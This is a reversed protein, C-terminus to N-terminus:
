SSVLVSLLPRYENTSGSLAFVVSAAAMPAHCMRCAKKSKLGCSSGSIVFKVKLRHVSLYGRRDKTTTFYSIKSVTVTAMVSRCKVVVEVLLVFADLVASDFTNFELHIGKTYDVADDIFLDLSRVVWFKCYVVCIADFRYIVSDIGEHLLRVVHWLAAVVLDLVASL